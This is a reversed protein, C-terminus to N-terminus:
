APREVLVDRQRVVLEGAADVFETELTVLRLSTGDPRQKREDAVVRRTGVLRDGAVLPRLYAWGSWFSASIATTVLSSSSPRPRPRRRSVPPSPQPV